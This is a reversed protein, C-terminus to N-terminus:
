PTCNVYNNYVKRQTHTHTHAAHTYIYSFNFPRHSSTVCKCERGQYTERDKTTKNQQQQKGQGVKKQTRTQTTQTTTIIIIKNPTTTVNFSRWCFSNRLFSSHVRDLCVYIPSLFCSCLCVLRDVIAAVHSFPNFFSFSSSSSSPPRLFTRLLFTARPFPAFPSLAVIVVNTTPQNSARLHRSPYQPHLTNAHVLSRTLTVDISGLRASLEQKCTSRAFLKIILFGGSSANM